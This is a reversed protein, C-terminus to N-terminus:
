TKERRRGCSYRQRGVHAEMRQARRGYAKLSRGIYMDHPNILFRGHRGEIIEYYGTSLLADTM